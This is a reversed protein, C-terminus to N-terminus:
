RAALSEVLRTEIACTIGPVTGEFLLKGTDGAGWDARADRVRTTDISIFLASALLPSEGHRRVCACSRVELPM